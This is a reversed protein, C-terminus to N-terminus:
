QSYLIFVAENIRKNLNKIVQKVQKIVLECGPKTSVM